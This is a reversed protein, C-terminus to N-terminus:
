IGELGDGGLLIAHFHPSTDMRYACIKNLVLVCRSSFSDGWACRELCSQTSIDGCSICDTCHCRQTGRLYVGVCVCVTLFDLGGPGMEELGESMFKRVAVRTEPLTQPHPSCILVMRQEFINACGRADRAADTSPFLLHTGDETTPVYKCLCAIMHHRGSICTLMCDSRNIVTLM